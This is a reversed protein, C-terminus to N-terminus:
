DFLSPSSVRYFIGFNTSPLRRQSRNGVALASAPKLVTKVVGDLLTYILSILRGLDMLVTGGINAM